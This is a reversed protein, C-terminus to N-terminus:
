RGAVDLLHTHKKLTRLVLFVALSVAFLALWRIDSVLWASVPEGGAVVDTLFEEVVFAGALALVGNYERRLVTRPSFPLAPRRWRGPRPLFAPTRRLWALYAGGFKESLYAEEAAVVREIYLWYALGFIAVLWWTKAMLIVGLMAIFNGLYLPNRVTAYVGTTNLVTARQDRTNRGSTGGPVFGVTVCRLLLGGYAIVLSFGDWIDEWREGLRDNLAASNPLAALLVPLLLLPAFSRWRFLM